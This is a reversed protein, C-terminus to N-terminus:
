MTRARLADDLKPDGHSYLRKLARLSALCEAVRGNPAFLVVWSVDAARSLQFAMTGKM